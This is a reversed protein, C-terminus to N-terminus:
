GVHCHEGTAAQAGAPVRVAGALTRRHHLIIRTMLTIGIANTILGVVILPIKYNSLFVAAGSLGVVPLVDAVHHLCCAIMSTTSTGTGAAAVATSSKLGHDGRLLRRVYAYLGIQIGFGAAVAAVYYRDTLLLDVAHSWSKSGLWVIVLYFGLLGAAGLLGVGAARPVPGPVQPFSRVRERSPLVSPLEAESSSM